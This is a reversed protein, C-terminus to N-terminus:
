EITVDVPNIYEWRGAVESFAGVRLKYAGPMVNNLTVSTGSTQIRLQPNSWGSQSLEVIYRAVKTDGQWAVVGGSGSLAGMLPVLSVNRRVPADVVFRSVESVGSENEVQWYWLGPWPHALAYTNGSVAIKKELPVMESNRSFSIHGGPTGSWEFVASESTEDYSRRQGDQPSVLTPAGEGGYASDMSSDDDYSDDYSDDDSDSAATDDDGYDDDYSDDYSDDDSDSASTDDDYDDDSDDDSSFSSPDDYDSSSGSDSAGFPKVIFFLGGLLVVGAVLAIKKINDSGAGDRFFQSFGTTDMSLQSVLDSKFETSFSPESGTQSQSGLEGLGTPGPQSDPTQTSSFLSSIKTSGADKGQDDTNM